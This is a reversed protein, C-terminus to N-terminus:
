GLLSTSVDSPEALNAWSGRVHGIHQRMMSEAGVADGAELAALLEMHEAASGVLNGEEAMRSLGYLRTQARLHNVSEVLRRNGVMSLMELHFLRDLELYNILDGEAAHACIQEALVRLRCLQDASIVLAVQGVTPPEILLRLQTVEDLDHDSVAVVRFGKNRVPEVLGEKALDLMAERVPTASVGFREALTPVSYTVGSQMQGAVISSRLAGAIQERLSVPSGVKPLEPHSYGTV